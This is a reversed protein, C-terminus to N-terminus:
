HHFSLMFDNRDAQIYEITLQFIYLNQLEKREITLTCLVIIKRKKWMMWFLIISCGYESPLQTSGCTGGVEMFSYVTM